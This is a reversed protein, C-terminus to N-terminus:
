CSFFFFFFSFASFSFFFFSAAAFIFLSALLFFLWVDLFNMEHRDLYKYLIPCVQEPSGWTSPSELQSTKAEQYRQLWKLIDPPHESHHWGPTGLTSVPSRKVALILTLGFGYFCAKGFLSVCSLAAPVRLM